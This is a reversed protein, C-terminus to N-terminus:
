FSNKGYQDIYKKVDFKGKCGNYSMYRVKGFIRRENWARDHVGGISWAIGAYGNPDRGDLEYRDNLYVAFEMAQEPSETWELIKKAWYMRMYGHMKGRILMEKQAANWLEDHTRAQQFERLSYIYERPKKRHRDLSTKAWSPFGQFSDYHDNYYCFNDSLERRVILEELFADRDVEPARSAGVELAARQASLNGFHLYPSLHSQGDASPDNRQKNYLPLKNRVFNKLVKNAAKEGTKLWSIEQVNRDARLSSYVDNWQVRRRRGALPHPHKKISPFDELFEPMLRRIKPRFTYAAYEQKPSATWCPVINHADVEHFPVDIKESVGEKWTRKIRLPDFDTVLCAAGLKKVLRPIQEEPMGEELFFSINKRNLSDELEQLGRLMFGYQRIAAELFHPVLCFLVALPSKYKLALDQAFLLAWNDNMRQDRSMWYIVPGKGTKGEKILRARKEIM